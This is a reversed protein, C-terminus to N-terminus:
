WDDCTPVTTEIGHQYFSRGTCYHECDDQFGRLIGAMMKWDIKLNDNGVEFKRQAVESINLLTKINLSM